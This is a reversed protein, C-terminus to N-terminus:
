AVQLWTVQSDFMRNANRVNDLNGNLRNNSGAPFHMMVDSTCPLIFVALLCGWLFIIKMSQQSAFSLIQMVDFIIMKPPIGQVAKM